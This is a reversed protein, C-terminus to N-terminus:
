GLPQHKQVEIFIHQDKAYPVAQKVKKEIEVITSEIRAKDLGDSLNVEMGIIVDETGLHMTRMSVIAKVEPIATVAEMIRTYEGKSISEGVLLGRNERALFFAFAMLITGIALSSIADFISNGTIDSLFIGVGAIVIGLLAATDEVMVTIITPDKSEKFEKVLTQMNVKEGRAEITQKFLKYAIRLANIEFVFSIALVVYSINANEIHHAEGFLSSFGHQMSLVGSVGFLMTAVIFSWFFAEKGYGFQHRESAAKASTKIGILLLVQNFTDSASHYAEAYM